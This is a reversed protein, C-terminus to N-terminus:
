SKGQNYKEEAKKVRRSKPRGKELERASVPEHGRDMYPPLLRNVLGLAWVTLGPFLARAVRAAKVTLSPSVIREGGQMAAVIRAATRDPNAAVVPLYASWSFWAYEREYEGKLNINGPSGTVMFGPYVSTVRIGYRSLEASLGESLGSLAFKSVNYPLLHPFSIIGGISIINVIRGGRSEKMGPLVRNILNLPGRFHVNMAAEYDGTNMAESPGVTMIGANNILADVRGMREEIETIMSQVQGSDAIDCKVFMFSGGKATIEATVSDMNAPNRGCVVVRAKKEALRRAIALGLGKTGGAVLVVKDRLDFWNLYRIMVQVVIVSLVILVAILIIINLAQTEM